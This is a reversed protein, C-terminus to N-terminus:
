KRGDATLLSQLRPIRRVLNGGPHLRLTPPSAPFAPNCEGVANEIQQVRPVDINEGSGASGGVREDDADVAVLRHAPKLTRGPRYMAVGLAGVNEGREFAHIQNYNEGVIRREIEDLMEFRVDYHFTAIVGLFGNDAGAFYFAPAAVDDDDGKSRTM